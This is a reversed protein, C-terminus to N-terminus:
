CYGCHEGEESDQGWWGALKNLIEARPGVFLDPNPLARLFAGSYASKGPAARPDLIIVAGRDQSTRILRGFGQKFRLVAEPLAYNTFPNHGQKALAESRAAVVPMGPSWFPLKTLVVCKLTDGPFDVGEWFSNTGLLIAPPQPSSFQRGLTTSDGDLGQAAVCTPSDQLMAYLQHATDKLLRHSTFLALIGGGFIPILAYLFDSIEAATRGYRPDPMDTAVCCLAQQRYDFPSPVVLFQVSERPLHILGLRSRFYQFDDGATLTASTLIVSRFRAFLQAALMDGVALPATFLHYDHRHNNNVEVWLVWTDPDCTLFQRLAHACEGVIAMARARTPVHSSKHKGAEAEQNSLLEQLVLLLNTGRLNLLSWFASWNDNEWLTSHLHATTIGEENTQGIPAVLENLHPIFEHLLALGQKAGLAQLAAQLVGTALHSGLQDSAVGELHHAEDIILREAEPLLGGGMKVNALLLAHNVIVLDAKEARRRAQRVFCRGEWWPCAAGLCIEPSSALLPWVEQIDIGQAALHGALEARDGTETSLLWDLVPALTGFLDGERQSWRRRCAYNHRGKLLATRLPRPSIQQLLPLDREWIQEQLTITHTSVITQEDDVVARWLAPILYALSKGSGTGGEVVLHEDAACADAVASLIKIQEPRPEYNPLLRAM